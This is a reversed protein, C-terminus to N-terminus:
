YLNFHWKWKCLSSVFIWLFTFLTFCRDRIGALTQPVQERHLSILHKYKLPKTRVEWFLISRRLDHNLLAITAGCKWWLNTGPTETTRSLSQFFVLCGTNDTITEIEAQMMHFSGDQPQRRQLYFTATFQRSFSFFFMNRCRQSSKEETTEFHLRRLLM